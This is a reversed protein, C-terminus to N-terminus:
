GVEIIRAVPDRSSIVDIREDDTVILYHKAGPHHCLDAESFSGLWVSDEVIWFPSPKPIADHFQRWFDVCSEELTSRFAVAIGFSIEITREADEVRVVLGDHDDGLSQLSVTPANVEVPSWETFHEPM